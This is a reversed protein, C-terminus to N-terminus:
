DSECVPGPGPSPQKQASSSKPFVFANQCNLLLKAEELWRPVGRRRQNILFQQVSTRSQPVSIAQQPAALEAWQRVMKAPPHPNSINKRMWSNISEKVAKPLPKKKAEVQSKKAQGKKTTKAKVM